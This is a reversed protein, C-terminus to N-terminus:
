AFKVGDPLMTVGTATRRLRMLVRHTRRDIILARRYQETAGLRTLTGKRAGVETAACGHSVPLNGTDTSFYLTQYPLKIKGASHRM